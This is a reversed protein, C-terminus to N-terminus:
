YGAASGGHGAGPALWNRRLDSIGKEYDGTEEIYPRFRDRLAIRPIARLWADLTLAGRGTVRYRVDRRAIRGPKGNLAAEYFAPLDWNLEFADVGDPTVLLARNCKVADALLWEDLAVGEVRCVEALLSQAEAYFGELQGDAVLRALPYLEPGWWMKLLDDSYVFAPVGEQLGRATKGMLRAIAASLPYRGADADLFAEVMRRYSLRCTEALVLFPVQLLRGTHLLQTMWAFARARVWDPRPMAATAVVTEILEEAFQRTAGQRPPPDLPLEVCELGYRRRYDPEAMEANPLVQCNYINLKNHQGLRIMEAVGNAFSEYTEGPLGIIVDTYTTIGDRLSRSQIERFSNLSINDRKIAILTPRDISQLSVTPEFFLRGSSALIRQVQYSRETANKTNQICLTLTSQHRELADVLVQAIEPDRPLIGFNADAIFVHHIHNRAIWDAEGHLREMDFRYVKSGTASGWDCFTCSFPCGRNTEWATEWKVQPHAAMLPEFLGALYPSPLVSLDAERPVPAHQVCVGGANLYGISPISDWDRTRARELIQLFVKEGEGQCVLDVFPHHRLFQEARRPVHPGGFVILTEPRDEKLRRALELSYRYNWVYVSFAVVDADRLQRAAREVPVRWALPMLFRFQEPREAYEMAYAQLMGVSYPLYAHPQASDGSRPNAQVLGVQLM